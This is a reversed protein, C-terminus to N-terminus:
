GAKNWRKIAGDKTWIDDRAEEGAPVMFPYPKTGPHNVRRAFVLDSRSTGKRPAGSLRRNAANPAFVLFRGNRPTITHPATGFELFVAAGGAEVRAEDRSIDAPQISRATTGTKKNPRHKEKALITTKVQWDKLAETDAMEGIANLRRILSKTGKVNEM